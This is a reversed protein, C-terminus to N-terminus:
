VAFCNEEFSSKPDMNRASPTEEVEHHDIDETNETASSDNPPLFALRAMEANYQIQRDRDQLNQMHTFAQMLQAADHVNPINNNNSPHSPYYRNILSNRYDDQPGGSFSSGTANVFPHNSPGRPESKIM